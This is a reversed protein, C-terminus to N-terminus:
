LCRDQPYVRNLHQIAELKLMQCVDGLSVQMIEMKMSNDKLAQTISITFSTYFSVQLDYKAILLLLCCDRFVFPNEM